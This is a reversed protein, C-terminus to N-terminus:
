IDVAEGNRVAREHMKEYEDFHKYVKKHEHGFLRAYYIAIACIFILSFTYGPYKSMFTCNNFLDFLLFLIIVTSLLMLCVTKQAIRTVGKESYVKIEKSGKVEKPNQNKIVSYSVMIIILIPIIWM